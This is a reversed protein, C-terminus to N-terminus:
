GTLVTIRETTEIGWTVSNEEKKLRSINSCLQNFIPAAIGTATTVTNQPANPKIKGHSTKPWFLCTM